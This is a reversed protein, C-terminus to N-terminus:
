GLREALWESFRHIAPNAYQFPAFVAYAAYDDIPLAWQPLAKVRGARLWANIYPTVALCAGENREVALMAAHFSDTELQFEPLAGAAAFRELWREWGQFPGLVRILPQELLEAVGAVSLDPGVVPVLGVGALRSHSLGPFRGSGYCVVVDLRQQPDTHNLAALENHTFLRIEWDPLDAKLTALQPTLIENALFPFAGIHLRKASHSGFPSANGISQFGATLEPLYRRGEETLAVNRSSRSFLLVGLHAELDRIQHSVNSPSVSLEEAAAKFSGLRGAAEFAQLWSLPARKRTSVTTLKAFVRELRQQRGRELM